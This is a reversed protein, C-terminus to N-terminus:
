KGSAVGQAELASIIRTTSAKNMDVAIHCRPVNGNGFEINRPSIEVSFRTGSLNQGVIYQAENFLILATIGEREKFGGKYTVVNGLFGLEKDIRCYRLVAGATPIKPHRLVSDELGDEIVQLANVPDM